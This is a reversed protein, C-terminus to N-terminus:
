LHLQEQILSISKVEGFQPILGMNVGTNFIERAERVSASFNSTSIVPLSEGDLRLLKKRNTPIKFFKNEKRAQNKRPRGRSSKIKLKKIENMLSHQSSMLSLDEGKSDDLLSLHDGKGLSFM